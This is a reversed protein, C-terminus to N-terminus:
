FTYTDTFAGKKIGSNGFKASISGDPYTVFSMDAATFATAHAAPALAVAIALSAAGFLTRKM